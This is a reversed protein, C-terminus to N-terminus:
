ISCISYLIKSKKLYCVRVRSRLQIDIELTSKLELKKGSKLLLEVEYYNKSYLCDFKRPYLRFLELEECVYNKRVLDIVILIGKFCHILAIPVFIAYFIGIFQIYIPFLILMVGFIFNVLDEILFLKIKELRFIGKNM